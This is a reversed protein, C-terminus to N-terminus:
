GKCKVDAGAVSLAKMVDLHGYLSAGCLPAYGCSNNGQM